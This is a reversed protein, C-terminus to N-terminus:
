QRRESRLALVDALAARLEAIEAELSQVRTVLAEPSPASGDCTSGSDYLLGNVHCVFRGTGSPFGGITISDAEFNQEVNLKGGAVNMQGGGGVTVFVDGSAVFLSGGADNITSGSTWKIKNNGGTGSAITMGSGDLTVTGGFTATVGSIAGATITGLNASIADLTSVTLRDATISGAAIDSAVITGAQIKASTISDAVITRADIADTKILGNTIETIGAPGWETFDEQTTSAEGFYARVWFLYPDALGGHNARIVFLASTATSPATSILGTRCYGAIDIGGISGTCFNSGTDSSVVAGASNFWSIYLLASTLRHLGVYVSAEYRTGATVPMRQGNLFSDTITGNAPTGPSVTYCTSSEDNLRWPSLGHSVIPAVASTTAATWDETGVRCESNRLINRGTGVTLKGDFTANGSTDITVKPDNDSGYMVLGNTSDITLRQAGPTGFAAGYTSGSYGYLGDLNGIAWRPSWDVYGTGTRVNGVITPGIETGARIGRVSYLDIFGNGTQGTNFVADGASWSNQGSGDLDRTVTYQWAGDVGGPGFDVRMFEVQGDAEFYIVDGVSLNNYKVEIPLVSGVAAASYDVSLINTPGVLVRGGITAITNQAVLTEVWLEAAHLTLYKRTLRGLNVTYGTGPLVDNGVPALIVDAGPLITLDTVPPSYIKTITLEEQAWASAPLLCLVFLLITRMRKGAIRYM